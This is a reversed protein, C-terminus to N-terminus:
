LLSFGWWTLNVFPVFGRRVSRHYISSYSSLVDLPDWSAEISLPQREETKSGNTAKLPGQFTQTARDSCVGRTQIYLDGARSKPPKEPGPTPATPCTMRDLHILSLHEGSAFGSNTLQALCSHGPDWSSGSLSVPFEYTNGPLPGIFKTPELGKQM